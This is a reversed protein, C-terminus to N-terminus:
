SFTTGHRLKPRCSNSPPWPRPVPVGIGSSFADRGANGVVSDGGLNRGVLERTKGHNLEGEGKNRTKIRFMRFVGIDMRTQPGKKMRFMQM